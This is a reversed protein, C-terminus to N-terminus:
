QNYKAKLYSKVLPGRVVDDLGFEIFDFENMEKLIRNFPVIGTQPGLDSQHTDGCFMVKCGHGFRTIVSDLEHFTMNQYEDILIVSNNLNTGRIFSTTMYRILGKSALYDYADARGDFLETCIERYPNQYIATKQKDDGPLFGIKRTEVASRIITVHSYNDKRIVEDLGIYLAGFTKGTGAAGHAVFHGPAEFMESQKDTLPQIYNLTMNIKNSARNSRRQTLTLSEM